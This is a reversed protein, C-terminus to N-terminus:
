LQQKATENEEKISEMMKLKEDQAVIITKLHEIEVEKESISHQYDRQDYENAGVANQKAKKSTPSGRNKMSKTPSKAPSSEYHSSNNM